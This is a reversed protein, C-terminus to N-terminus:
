SEKLCKPAESSLTLKIPAPDKSYDFAKPNDELPETSTKSTIQIWMLLIEVLGLPHLHGM